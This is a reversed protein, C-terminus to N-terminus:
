GLEIESLEPTSDEKSSEHQTEDSYALGYKTVMKGMVEVMKELQVGQAELAMNQNEVVKMLEEVTPKPEEQKDADKGVDTNNDENETVGDLAASITNLATITNLAYDAKTALQEGAEIGADHLAKKMQNGM